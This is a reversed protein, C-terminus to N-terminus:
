SAPLGYSTDGVQISLDGVQLANDETYYLEIHTLPLTPDLSGLSQSSTAGTTSVDIDDLKLWGSTGSWDNDRYATSCSGSYSPVSVTPSSPDCSSTSQEFREPTWTHTGEDVDWYIIHTDPHYYMLYTRDDPFTCQGTHVSGTEDIYGSASPRPSMDVNFFRRDGTMSTTTIKEPFAEVVTMHGCGSLPIFTTGSWLKVYLNGNIGSAPPFSGVTFTLSSEVPVAPTCPVTAPTERCVFTHPGEPRLDNWKGHERNSSGPAAGWMNLYDEPGNVNNPQGTDWNEYDWASGDSWTWTGEQDVDSGGLFCWVPCLAAVEANESASHISALDYDNARCYDRADTWSMEQDVYVFSALSAAALAVVSAARLM